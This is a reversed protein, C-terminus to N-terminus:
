IESAESKTNIGRVSDLVLSRHLPVELPGWILVGM